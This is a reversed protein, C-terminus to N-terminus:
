TLGYRKVVSVFAPDNRAIAEEATAELRVRDFIAFCEWEGNLRSLYRIGGFRPRGRAEQRYAWASIAQTLPRDTGRVAPVDLGGEGLLEGAPDLVEELVLRTRQDEVDLFRVAQPAKVRALRHGKRWQDLKTQMDVKVDPRGRRLARLASAKPRVRDLTEGFAGERSSAFYRVVYRADPSDFRSRYGPGALSREVPSAEVALPDGKRGVRWLGLEPAAVAKPRSM